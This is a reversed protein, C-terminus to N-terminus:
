YTEDNEFKEIIKRCEVFKNAFYSKTKYINDITDNGLYESVLKEAKELIGFNDIYIKSEAILKNLEDKTM